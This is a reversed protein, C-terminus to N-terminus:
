DYGWGEAEDLADQEEQSLPPPAEKNEEVEKSNKYTRIDATAQRDSAQRKVTARRGNQRDSSQFKDFSLVTIIRIKNDHWDTLEGTMKLHNLATRVERITLGTERALTPLSTIFQGRKYKYGHWTGDKWNAKLLCHFFLVKTNVDTYWEWNLVKRFVKIYETDSYEWSMVTNNQGEQIGEGM